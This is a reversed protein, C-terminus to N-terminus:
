KSSIVQRGRLSNLVVGKIVVRNGDVVHPRLLHPDATAALLYPPQFLRFVTETQSTNWDYVQACVVDGAVPTENLGVILIDGPLYGANELARSRLTWPDLNDRGRLLAAIAGTAVDGSALDLPTAEAEAFGESPEVAPAEGPAPIGSVKGIKIITSRRLAHGQRQGSLFRSLTSPDLGARSALETQTWGTRALVDQLYRRQDATEGTM